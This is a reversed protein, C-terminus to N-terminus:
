RQGEKSAIDRQGSVFNVSFNDLDDPRRQKPDLKLSETQQLADTSITPNSTYNMAAGNTRQLRQCLQRAQQIETETAQALASDRSELCAFQDLSRGAKPQRPRPQEQRAGRSSGGRHDQYEKSASACDASELDMASVALIHQPIRNAGSQETTVSQRSTEPMPPKGVRRQRPDRASLVRGGM